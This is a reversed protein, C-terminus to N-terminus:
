EIVDDALVQMINLYTANKNKFLKQMSTIHSKSISSHANTTIFRSAKIWHYAYGNLQNQQGSRNLREQNRQSSMTRCCKSVKKAFPGLHNLLNAFHTNQELDDRRGNPVLRQSVIHCEGVCWSNFRKEQFISDLVREDGVQINGARIRLGKVGTKEPIAGLYDSHLIWGVADIDGLVGNVQFVELETFTGFVNTRAEFKDSFLRNLAKGNVQINYSKYIHYENLFSVISDSFSFENKFPVPGIQSIYDSVADENLLIDNKLRVVSRMEIELHPRLFSNM